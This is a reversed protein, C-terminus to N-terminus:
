ESAEVIEWLQNEGGHFNWMKVRTTPAPNPPVDISMMTLRSRITYFGSPLRKIQWHQHQQNKKQAQVIWAGLKASADQIEICQNSARSRSNKTELYYWGQEGTPAVSWIQNDTNTWYYLTLPDGDRIGGENGGIDLHLKEFMKSRLLFNEPFASDSVTPVPTISVMQNHSPTPTSEPFLSVVLGSLSLSPGPWSSWTSTVRDVGELAIVCLSAIIVYLLVPPRPKPWRVVTVKPPPVEHERELFDMWSEMHARVFYEAHNFVFEKQELRPHERGLAMGRAGSAGSGRVFFRVLKVWPDRAGFENRVAHVRGSELLDDWPFDMPLISGCLIIKNFRLREYKLM